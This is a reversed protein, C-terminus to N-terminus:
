FRPAGGASLAAAAEGGPSGDAIAIRRMVAADARTGAPRRSHDFPSRHCGASRIERPRVEITPLGSKGGGVNKGGPPFTEVLGRRRVRGVRLGIPEAFESQKDLPAIHEGVPGGHVRVERTLPESSPDLALVYAQWAGRALREIRAFHSGLEVRHRGKM